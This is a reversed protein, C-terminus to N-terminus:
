DVIHHSFFRYYGKMVGGRETFLTEIINFAELATIGLFVDNVRPTDKVLLSLTKWTRVSVSRTPTCLVRILIDLIGLMNNTKYRQNYPVWNATLRMDLASLATGTTEFRHKRFASVLTTVVDEGGRLALICDRLPCHEDMRMYSDKFSLMCPNMGRIPDPLRLLSEMRQYDTAHHYQVSMDFADQQSPCLLNNTLRNLLTGTTPDIEEGQKLVYRTM